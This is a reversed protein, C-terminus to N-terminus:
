VIAARLITGVVIVAVVAWAPARKRSIILAATVIVLPVLLFWLQNAQSAASWNGQLAFMVAHTLGCFLCPRGTALKFMCVPVGSDAVLPAFVIALLLLVGAVVLFRRNM